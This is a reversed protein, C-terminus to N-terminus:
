GENGAEDVFINNCSQGICTSCMVTCFLGAKRCKCMRGCLTKCGCSVIRLIRDPAVARDTGIPQLMGDRLQWGWDTAVVADNGLWQQITYYARYSHYKAAASTPPLSELKFGESTLSRRTVQKMYLVHRAKDLSASQTAGYLHLLFSEGGQEIEDRDANERRFVDLNDWNNGDHELISLAKRKGINYLASVTDCGTVAHAFLIHRKVVAHLAQQIETISYITLPNNRFQMYIDMTPTAKDVLMVLLDTDNGVLIVPRDQVTASALATNSILYDADAPAQSCLVGSNEMKVMLMTILRAKNQRNNLFLSQSTSVKMDLEFIIDPSVNQVTRRRQETVKTSMMENYGDFIITCDAGYNNVVYTVYLDCVEDYTCGQAWKVSHLLYGGDVVYHPCHLPVNVPTAKEKLANALASKTTKRMTGNDFLAPPYTGFEHQLYEKMESQHNIVCTVRMFLLASNIEVEKGRVKINDTAASISKVRDRRKLKVDAYNCGTMAAAAAKGVEYAQDANASKDAVLGTSISVLTDHSAYSLPSHLQLWNLFTSYDKADQATSSPRLDHHQDTTQTHVGAFVELSNCIPICRPTVHVWKTQTSSTIGRGHALGGPAKLMRMLVQEITQDTFNGGWFKDTRRITFYGDESFKRFQVETMVDPLTKMTDLYLRASRAYALHGAAHLIPIMESVAYLHLNWNGTREARIFLLLVCVQKIYEMWLKGTRSQGSLDTMLDQIIHIIQQVVEENHINSTDCKRNLLMDHVARLRNLNIGSLCGPTELIHAVLATSTLHARLARAYAHGSTMHVVSNPAYVTEWLEALGSGSMITGIAGMYSMILHFGGLRVVVKDLEPSSQVIECAKIYLPQDFTVPAIGLSNDVCLSQAYSLASYITDPQNPDLNIFPLIDIRSKDYKGKGAVRQMFGAWSPCVAEVPICLSFSALWLTDLSTALQLTDPKPVELPGVIHQKLGPVNPKQFRKIPVQAFEGLQAASRIHTSRPIEQVLPDAGMPNVCAIGGMAHWTGLGTLTRINVDANDFVFNVLDGSLNYVQEGDPLLANYLRQVERYDDSFGVSSLIDILERSEHMANIYVAIALLIPSIFSRPRVASIVSHAIALRRRESVNCVGTKRKIIGELLRKLSPPVTDGKTLDAFQPYKSMDYTASRIDDEIIMAAMDIISEKTLGSDLYSARLISNDSDLFTYISERGPQSTIIMDKGYHDQLKIKLYHSAYTPEDSTNFKDLLEELQRSSFQCEDCTDIYECLKLFANHKRDDVCGTPRGVAAPETQPPKGSHFRVQCEHHYVAEAAILDGVCQVRIRVDEGWKDNREDAKSVVSALLEKTEAQHINSRRFLPVRQDSGSYDQVPNGCYLCDHKINVTPAQSRRKPLTEKSPLSKRKRKAITSPKIYNKRCAVHIPIPLTKKSLKTGIEDQLDNSIALVKGLGKQHLEGRDSTIACGCFDCTEM